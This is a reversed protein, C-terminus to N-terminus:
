LTVRTGGDIPELRYSFTTVQPEQPTRCTLVLKCPRDVELVEGQLVYPQGRGVGSARWAGGVRVDAHWERTDFVGPNVWWRLVDDSVIAEFVRDMPASVEVSALILGDQTDAVARASTIRSNIM